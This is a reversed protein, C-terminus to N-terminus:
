AGRSRELLCINEIHDTHPFMDVPQIARVAYGAERLVGVDRAQTRPDCSVYVIRKPGWAAAAKLFRETAGARPPDMLLVWDDSSGADFGRASQALDEMFDTADGTVFRANEVGNHAANQRADVIASEVSDVGVVQAAGRKAAVLGITGTGCYADLVRQTGDLAALDIAAEYLKAAQVANVQYFSQSSIRFTLGCLEDLIFGPGYLVHEEDGLLVNTQRRNVNQVVTTVEPVRRKLERCFAKASAFERGNTVLTVLLEGTSQAARVIAHRVFGRGSDEDYPEMGYREMIDRIALTARKATANEILCDDTPILRHTGREYMGTLIARARHGPKRQGKGGQGKGPSRPAPAYPTAVKNRYRLPMEMGIIPQLVEAPALAAFLEGIRRQKEALQEAYPVDLRQCGGCRGFVPCTPADMHDSSEMAGNHWMPRACFGQTAM